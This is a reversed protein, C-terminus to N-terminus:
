HIYSFEWLSYSLSKTDQFNQPAGVCTYARTEKINVPFKLPISPDSSLRANQERKIERRFSDVSM